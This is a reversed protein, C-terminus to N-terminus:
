TVTVKGYAKFSSGPIERSLSGTLMARLNEFQAAEDIVICGESIGLPGKPHLRFRGRIVNNCFMEDDIKADAAYLAFWKNRGNFFDRLGGLMGGSERDVVYYVGPPIPGAGYSCAYRRQNVYEGKGSFAALELSKCKLASLPKGNLEFTCEVM